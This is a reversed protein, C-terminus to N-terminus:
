QVVLKCHKSVGEKNKLELFYVGGSQLGSVVINNSGNFSRDYVLQGNTDFIKITGSGKLSHANLTFNGTSPNPYVSITEDSSQVDDIGIVLSHKLVSLDSIVGPKIEAVLVYVDGSGAPIVLDSVGALGVGSVNISDMAYHTSNEYYFVSRYTNSNLTSFAITGSGTIDADLMSGINGNTTDAIFSWLNGNLKYAMVRSLTAHHFCLYPVGSADVKMKSNSSMSWITDGVITRVGADIKNVLTFYQFSPSTVYGGTACYLKNQSDFICSSENFITAGTGTLTCVSVWSSGSYQVMQKDANFGPAVFGLVTPVENTDLLFDFGAGSALLMSDGLQTWSTGNYKKVYCYTYAVSTIVITRSYAIYYSGDKVEVDVAQITTGPSGPYYGPAPLQLWSGSNSKAFYINGAYDYYGVFVEGAANFELDPSYLYTSTSVTQNLHPTGVYQWNQAFSTAIFFSMMLSLYIKKM